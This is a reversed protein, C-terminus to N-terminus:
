LGGRDSQRCRDHASPGVRRGTIKDPVVQMWHPRAGGAWPMLRQTMVEALAPTATHALEELTGTVVVSWGTRAIRDVLDVEFCVGSRRGLRFKTGADTRLLIVGDAVVYNVLFILPRRGPIVALRGVEEGRLLEFCVQSDLMEIGTAEDIM